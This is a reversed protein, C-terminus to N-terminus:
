PKLSADKTATASVDENQRQHSDLSQLHQRDALYTDELGSASPVGGLTFVSNRGSSPPEQQSEKNEEEIQNLDDNGAFPQPRQDTMVSLIAAASVQSENQFSSHQSTAGCGRYFSQSTALPRGYNQKLTNAKLKVIKSRGNQPKQSNLPAAPRPISPSPRASLEIQRM